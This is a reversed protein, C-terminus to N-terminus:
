GSSTATEDRRRFAYLHQRLYGKPYREDTLGFGAPKSAPLYATGFLWDWIALKTSFNLGGETIEIAHHWRHMEPGNIIRQLWGTRVDINSHIWMGWAADVAAKILALQPAAGLLVMPAFEITQNILIELAHSRAGALWDVDKESHHAEHIRWLIPSHHQWRHFLYIYLDHEVLFFLLQLWIPWGSVLHFRSLGTAADMRDSLWAILIGLVWSQAIAYWFLDTFMGARLFRQGPTYPFLRELAILVVASGLMLAPALMDWRSTVTSQASRQLVLERLKASRGIFAALARRGAYDAARSKGDALGELAKRRLRDPCGPLHGRPRRAGSSPTSFRSAGELNLLGGWQGEKSPLGNCRHAISTAIKNSATSSTVARAPGPIPIPPLWVSLVLRQSKGDDIQTDVSRAFV